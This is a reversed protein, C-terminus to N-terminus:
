QAAPIMFEVEKFSYERICGQRDHLLLRGDDEVGFIRGEFEGEKDRFRYYGDRHYLNMFYLESIDGYAGERTLEYYKKFSVIYLTGAKLAAENEPGKSNKQQEFGDADVITWAIAKPQDLMADRLVDRRADEKIFRKGDLNM